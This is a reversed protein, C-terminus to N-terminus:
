SVETRGDFRRRNDAGGSIVRNRFVISTAVRRGDSPVDRDFTTRGGQNSSTRDAEMSRERTHDAQQPTRNQDQTSMM